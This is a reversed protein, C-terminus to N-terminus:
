SLQWVRVIYNDGGDDRVWARGTKDTLIVTVGLAGLSARDHRRFFRRGSKGNNEPM